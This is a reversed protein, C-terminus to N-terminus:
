NGRKILKLKIGTAVSFLLLGLLLLLLPENTTIQSASVIEAPAKLSSQAWVTDPGLLSLAMVGIAKLMGRIVNIHLCVLGM